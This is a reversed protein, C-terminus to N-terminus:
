GGASSSMLLLRDGPQVLDGAKLFNRGNRNLVHGDVLGGRHPDLVPGVLPPCAGALAELFALVPTPASIDISLQKLGAHLRAPGLLEVYCSLAAPPPAAAVQDPRTM